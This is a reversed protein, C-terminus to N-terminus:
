EMAQFERMFKRDIYDKVRFALRGNFQLWKKRLIGIGDGMNFVLLYDGGPDFSQLSRGELAAVLNHYLVPNERVAYVGVKDLPRDQFYICDGGGFIEPCEPSQLYSNVLLGGDPGVPLGSEKFIMSPRVGTALMIFDVDYSQGSDLVVRGSDVQSVYGEEIIRIGRSVLTQRAKGRIAEPFRSMFNRGAFVTISPQFAAKKVLASINGAIEAAAPGGGVVAVSIKRDATLEVLRDRAQLLREIPKVSFVDKGEMPQGPTPVYSGANFSVVDYSIDGGSQLFVKKGAPDARVVKDRIFKCGQKEVVHRTAFRIDEPKYFGSLMGPGMGSYYHYDSPGIVTVEHGKAKIAALNALTVMHAHGGGVLVLHKKM